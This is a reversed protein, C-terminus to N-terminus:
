FADMERVGDTGPSPLAPATVLSTSVGPLVSPSGPKARPSPASLRYVTVPSKARWVEGKCLGGKGPARLVYQNLVSSVVAPAEVKEFTPPMTM